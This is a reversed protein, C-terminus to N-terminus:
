IGQPLKRTAWDVDGYFCILTSFYGKLLFQGQFFYAFIIILTSWSGRWHETTHSHMKDIGHAAWAIHVIGRVIMQKPFGLPLELQSGMLGPHPSISVWLWGYSRVARNAMAGDCDLRDLQMIRIEILRQCIEAPSELAVPLIDEGRIWVKLWVQLCGRKPHCPHAPHHNDLSSILNAFTFPSRARWNMSWRVVGIRPSLHEAHLHLGGLVGPWTYFLM